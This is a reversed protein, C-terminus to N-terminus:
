NPNNVVRHSVKLEINWEDGRENLDLVAKRENSLSFKPLVYVLRVTENKTIRSPVNSSFFLLERLSIQSM